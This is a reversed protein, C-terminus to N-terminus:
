QAGLCFLIHRQMEGREILQRQEDIAAEFPKDIAVTIHGALIIPIRPKIEPFIRFVGPAFHRDSEFGAHILDHQAHAVSLKSRASKKRAHLLQLFRNAVRARFVKDFYEGDGHVREDIILGLAILDFPEAFFFHIAVHSVLQFDRECRISGLMPEQVGFRKQGDLAGGNEGVFGCWRRLRNKIEIVSCDGAAHHRVREFARLQM